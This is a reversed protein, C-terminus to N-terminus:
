LYDAECTLCFLGDGASCANSMLLHLQSSNLIVYYTYTYSSNHAFVGPISLYDLAMRYLRPYTKRKEYWWQLVDQINEVDTNLYLSLEDILAASRIPALL